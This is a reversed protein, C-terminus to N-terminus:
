GEHHDGELFNSVMMVVKVLIMLPIALILIPIMFIMAFFTEIMDNM